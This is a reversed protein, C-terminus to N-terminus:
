LGKRCRGAKYNTKIGAILLIYLSMEFTRHLERETRVKAHLFIQILSFAILGTAEHPQAMKVRYAQACSRKESLDPNTIFTM